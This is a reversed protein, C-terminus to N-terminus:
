FFFGLWDVFLGVFGSFFDLVVLWFITSEILHSALKYKADMSRCKTSEQVVLSCLSVRFIFFPLITFYYFSVM